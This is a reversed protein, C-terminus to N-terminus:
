SLHTRLWDTTAGWAEVAVAENYAGGTDNNFAHGAGEYIKTEFIKGDMATELDPIGANVRADDAGYQALIAAKTGRM